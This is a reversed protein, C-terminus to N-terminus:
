IMPRGDLRRVGIVSPKPPANVTKAPWNSGIPVQRSQMFEEGTTTRISIQRTEMRNDKRISGAEGPHQVALFLTRDDYSFYPGTMEVDMPGYSFLFAQGAGPGSTPLYWMSNNGYIARLNSQSIPRGQSDKRGAPIPLNLRESSMDVVMWINGKRDVLLNDPNSFGMGGDAPEGGTALMSWRFTLAGPDNGDEFLRMIWGYEWVGGKPGKFIEKDPGGDSGPTGSTFAILLSGDPMMDTDEPRATCTIGAANAAFHADILIAGQKELDSGEYLDGLTKFRQAFAAADADTRVATIGGEPRKPLNVRDGFVTSPKVPNVPTSMTLPVWRGTGDPNFKAGYLMGNEFLRSNSKDTPNQVSDRSIFKYLHGGRRDCGSYVAMKKGAQVNFAVAEHRFRGLWSHKTGYDNPNTPDVEVMWGQKNGALGFVNGLGLVEDPAFQFTVTSPDLSTGDANVGEPVHNQFNEEASLVTGWPSTGGACNNMSGIIRDGLGDLYGQGSTKRFVSVAPGTAKLYRGDELGSVGTTRRDVPKNARVWKGNSDRRLSVSGFGQDVLAEYSIARIAMKLPDNDPLGHANIGKDGAAKLAAEVQEFPLQKGIVQAFTDKWAQASVYEFNSHLVGEGEGTQIFSLYDNNYGFRSDGLRDGWSIIVDYTFGEPLVVDDKVEFRSYAAKQQDPTLGDSKLPIASKIPKFLSFSQANAPEMLFSANGNSDWNGFTATGVGAGLFLLFQRRNLGM